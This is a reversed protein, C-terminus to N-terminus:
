QEKILKDLHINVLNRIFSSCDRKDLKALKQIIEKEEPTVRIYIRESRYADYSKDKKIKLFMSIIEKLM